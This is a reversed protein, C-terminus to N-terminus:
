GRLFPNTALEVALTTAGGHGAIVKNEPDMGALRKLSEGLVRMDGGPLDTRGCSGAFLTDGTLLLKEKEFHICVGGPTHGPTAVVKAKLGGAELEVGDELDAALTGPKEVPMYYPMWSNRETFAWGADAPGIHVPLGPWKELLGAVGGIHDFHGHTFVVMAPTLGKEECFAILDAADAGPDVIWAAGPDEWLITCNADIPGTPITKYEM